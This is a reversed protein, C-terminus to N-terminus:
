QPTLLTTLINKLRRFKKEEQKSHGKLVNQLEFFELKIKEKELEPSSIFRLDDNSFFNSALHINYVRITDTDIIIDSFICTNNM